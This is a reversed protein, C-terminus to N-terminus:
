MKVIKRVNQILLIFSNRVRVSVSEVNVSALERVFRMVELRRVLIRRRLVVVIMVVGVKMVSALEVIVSGMELVCSM